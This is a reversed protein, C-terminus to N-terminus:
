GGKSINYNYAVANRRLEYNRIKERLQPETLCEWGPLRSFTTVGSKKCYMPQGRVDYKQYTAAERQFKKELLTTGPEAASAITAGAALLIVSFVRTRSM